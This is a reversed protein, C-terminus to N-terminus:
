EGGKNINKFVDVIYELLEQQEITREEKSVMSTLRIDFCVGIFGNEVAFKYFDKIKDDPFEVSFREPHTDDRCDEIIFDPFKDKVLKKIEYDAYVLEFM